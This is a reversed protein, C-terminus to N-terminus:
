ELRFGDVYLSFHRRVESAYVAVNTVRTLDLERAEPGVRVDDLAVAIQNLGPEIRLERDFRDERREDSAADLIRLRLPAPQALESFVEFRLTEYGTWDPVPAQIMWTADRESLFTLEAVTGPDGPWGAPAPVREVDVGWGSTFRDEWAAEFSALDPFAWARLVYARALALEPLITVLLLVVAAARLRARRGAAVVHRDFTAAFLLFAGAGFVNRVGDWPDSDRSSFIQAFEAVVGLGAAFAFALVYARRRLPPAERDVLAVRLLVLAIVGFILAHGIDFLVQWLLTEEPPRLRLLTVVLAM